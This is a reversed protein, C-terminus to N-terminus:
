LRSFMAARCAVPQQPSPPTDNSGPLTYASMIDRLFEDDPVAQSRRRDLRGAATHKRGPM